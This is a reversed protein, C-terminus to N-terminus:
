LLILAAGGVKSFLYFIVGFIIKFFDLDLWFFVSNGHNREFLLKFYLNKCLINMFSSEAEM